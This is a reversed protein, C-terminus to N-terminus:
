LTLGEGPTYPACHAGSLEERRVNRWFPGAAREWTARDVPILSILVGYRLNFAALLDVLSDVERSPRVEGELVLALDIDSEPGAEGRAVSGYCVVRALRDGYRAVLGEKFENLIYDLKGL